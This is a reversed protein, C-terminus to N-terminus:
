SCMSTEIKLWSRNSCCVHELDINEAYSQTQCTFCSWFFWCSYLGKLGPNWTVHALNPQWRIPLARRFYMVFSWWVLVQSCHMTASILFVWAWNQTRCRVDIRLCRFHAARVGLIALGKDTLGTCGGILLEQLNPCCHVIYKMARNSLQLLQYESIM